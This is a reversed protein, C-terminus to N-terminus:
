RIANAAAAIHSEVNTNWEAASQTRGKRSSTMATVEPASANYEVPVLRANQAPNQTAKTINFERNALWKKRRNLQTDGGLGSCAM